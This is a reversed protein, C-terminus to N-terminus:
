GYANNKACALFNRQRNKQRLCMANLPVKQFRLVM